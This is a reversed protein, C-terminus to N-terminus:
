LTSHNALCIQSTSLAYNTASTTGYVHNKAAPVTVNSNDNNNDNKSQLILMWDFAPEADSDILDRAKKELSALFQKEKDDETSQMHIM